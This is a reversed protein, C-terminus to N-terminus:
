NTFNKRRIPGDFAENTAFSKQGYDFRTTGLAEKFKDKSTAL